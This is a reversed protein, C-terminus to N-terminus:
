SHKNAWPFHQVYALEISHQDSPSYATSQCVVGTWGHHTVTYSMAVGCRQCQDALSGYKNFIHTQSSPDGRHQYEQEQTMGIMRPTM